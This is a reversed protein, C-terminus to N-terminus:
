LGRKGERQTCEARERREKQKKEGEIGSVIEDTKQKEGATDCDFHRM